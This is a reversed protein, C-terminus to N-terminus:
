RALVEECRDHFYKIDDMAQHPYHAIRPEHIKTREPDAAKLSAGQPINKEQRLWYVERVNGPIKISPCYKHPLLSRWPKWRSRYVPDSLVAATIDCSYSELYRALETFGWGCGWSYAFVYVEPCVGDPSMDWIWRATEKWRRNWEQPPLVVTSGGDYRRIKQWLHTIGNKASRGQTFGSIPIIWRAIDENM